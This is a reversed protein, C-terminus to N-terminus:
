STETVTTILYPVMWTNHWYLHTPAPNPTALQQLQSVFHQHSCFMLFFVKNAHLFFLPSKQIEKQSLKKLSCKEGFKSKNILSFIYYLHTPPHNHHCTSMMNLTPILFNQHKGILHTPPDLFPWYMSGYDKFPGWSLFFWFIVITLDFNSQLSKDRIKQSM